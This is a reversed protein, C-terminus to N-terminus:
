GKATPYLTIKSFCNPRVRMPPLHPSHQWADAYKVGMLGDEVDVDYVFFYAKEGTSLTAAATGIKQPGPM